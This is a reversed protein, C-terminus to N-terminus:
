CINDEEDLIQASLAEALPRLTDPADESRCDVSVYGRKQYRLPIRIEESATWFIKSGSFATMTMGTMPNKVEMPKGQEKTVGKVALLEEESIKGESRKIYLTFAM